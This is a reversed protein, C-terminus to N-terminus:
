FVSSVKNVYTYIRHLDAEHTKQCFKYWGIIVSKSYCSLTINHVPNAWRKYSYFPFNLYLLTSFGRFTEHVLDRFFDEIISTPLSFYPPDLIQCNKPMQRPGHRDFEMIKIFMGNAMWFRIETEARELLILFRNRQCYAICHLCHHLPVNFNGAETAIRVSNAAHIM